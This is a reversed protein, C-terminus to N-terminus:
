PAEDGSTAEVVTGDDFDLSLSVAGDALTWSLNITYDRDVLMTEIVDEALGARAMSLGVVMMAAGTVADELAASLTENRAQHKLAEILVSWPDTTVLELYEAATTM